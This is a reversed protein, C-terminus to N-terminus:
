NTNTFQTVTEYVRLECESKEYKMATIRGVYTRSHVQTEMAQQVIQNNASITPTVTKLIDGYQEEFLAHFKDGEEIICSAKFDNSGIRSQQWDLGWANTSFEIFHLM